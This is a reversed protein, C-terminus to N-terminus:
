KKKGEVKKVFVGVFISAIIIYVPSLNFVISVIFSVAFIIIGYVDKKGTKWLKIIAKLVLAAVAVRIGAFAHGVVAYHSFNQLFAAITVIILLSPAVVGATAVIGGIIGAQKYGIFTATNVAIIGPTCQGIAYYNLLEEETAWKYKDVAEKQLMPLMAYGGGFTFAGIRFFAGFLNLLKKLKNEEKGINHYKIFLGKELSCLKNLKMM